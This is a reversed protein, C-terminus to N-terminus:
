QKRGGRNVSRESPQARRLYLVRALLLWGGVALLATMALLPNTSSRSASGSGVGAGPLGEPTPAIGVPVIEGGPTPTLAEGPIPTLAAPAPSVTSTPSATGPVPTRTRKGGAPSTPTPSTVPSTPTSTATSPTATGSTPTPTGTAPTPTGTAPTPTGTAPTPTGTAPTPTPTESPEPEWCTNGDRGYVFQLDKIDIDYDPISPELDFFWNYPWFGLMSGYRGSVAQEDIVNVECDYNVDGELAQVLVTASVIGDIPIPEGFEDALGAEWRDNLLHVLVGNGATPRLSLDPNPRMTIYALIGSGSPGPESGTSTCGFRLGNETESRLCNTQRGTSGLFSGETVSVNVVDRSFYIRFEFAGLGTDDPINVVEETLVLEGEGPGECSAITEDCLWLDATQPNKFMVVPDAARAPPAAGLGGRTVALWLGLVVILILAASLPALVRSTLLCSDRLGRALRRRFHRGAASSSVPRLLLGLTGTLVVAFALAGMQLGGGLAIPTPSPTSVSVSGNQVSAPIDEAFTDALEVMILNLPSVGEDVAQFVVEALQGSGSAGPTESTPSPESTVCGFRVTGVDTIPDPCFVVRGTRGVFPGNSVDVYSVIDPDFELIFEYAALDNVDEVQVDVTFFEGVLVGQSAPVISVVAGGPILTSTPTPTPSPGPTYTISPTPSPGPTYTATPPATPTPTPAEVVTVSGDQQGAPIVTGMPDTLIVDEIDVLATGFNLPLFTVTALVGTGSPGAPEAGLTVCIVRVSAEDHDPPLCNVTRGSSGLFSGNKISVYRLIAPDFGLTLEYAGLNVVNEVVVDVTFEQGLPARKWVPDIRVLVPGPTPTRTPTPGVTPTATPTRTVTPTRSLTPTPSPGPTVSLTPTPTLVPTSTPAPEVAVSGDEEGAPIEVGRPDTVIVDQLHIAAVGTNIPLFTATALVGTGSPGDPEAGLTWCIIAASDPKLVPPDCNVVRGSSGLFPGNELSVYNLVAPDFGLRFQYAGLNVVNDVVVDVEFPVGVNARQEAPDVRVVVPGRTPTPTPSPGVTPTLTPPSTLTPTPTISPTPSPGPTVTLTVTPSLTPTPTPAPVVVVSAGQMRTVPISHARIDVLILNELDMSGIGERIGSLTVTALIGAGSPGDPESGLTRCILSVSNGVRRPPDCDVTRGSSGLFPGNAAGVYDLIVPDFELTFQYAGLNTVNEVVVGVSFNSGRFVVQGTPQICAVTEGPAAGCSPVPTPGATLTPTPSLSPTPSLTPTRSLTPTFTPGPTGAVVTVSGNEAVAAIDEAWPDSLSVMILDLPSAGGADASFAVEALVDSGSAGPTGSDYSVCGFRVTDVDTIAPPCFVTRGSSGLFPGDAVDLYSVVDPDFQLTFEYSGLDSVDDVMVRVIFQSGTTVEQSVPDIRVVAEQASAPIPDLRALLVLAAALLALCPFIFWRWTKM